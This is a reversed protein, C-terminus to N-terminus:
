PNEHIKWDTGDALLRDFYDRLQNVSALYPDLTKAARSLMVAGEMVTLVLTSLSDLNADEPLRGSAEALFGRIAM